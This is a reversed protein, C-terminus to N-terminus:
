QVGFNLTGFKPRLYPYAIRTCCQYWVVVFPSCPEELDLEGKLKRQEKVWDKLRQFDPKSLLLQIVAALGDGNVLPADHARDLDELLKTRNGFGKFCRVEADGDKSIYGERQFGGAELVGDDGFISFMANAMYDNIPFNRTDARFVNENTEGYMRKDLDATPELANEKDEHATTNAILKVVPKEYFKLLVAPFFHVALPDSNTGNRQSTLRM